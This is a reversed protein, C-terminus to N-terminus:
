GLFGRNGWRFIVGLAYILRKLFPLNYVENQLVQAIKREERYAYKIAAKRIAKNSKQSM